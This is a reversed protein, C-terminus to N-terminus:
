KIQYSNLSGDKRTESVHYEINAYLDISDVFKGHLPNESNWIYGAVLNGQSYLAMTVILKETLAGTNADSCISIRPPPSEIFGHQKLTKLSYAGDSISVISLKKVCAGKAPRRGTLTFELRKIGQIGNGTHPRLKAGKYVYMTEATASATVASSAM